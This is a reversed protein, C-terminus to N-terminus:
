SLASKAAALHVVWVAAALPATYLTAWVAGWVVANFLNGKCHHRDNVVHALMGRLLLYMLLAIVPLVFEIVLWVALLLLIFLVVSAIVGLCGEGIELSGTGFDGFSWWGSSTGPGSFRLPTGQFDDSVRKGSCLLYALALTWVVWWGALILEADIWMPLRFAVPVLVATLALCAFLAAASAKGSAAPLLLRTTLPRRPRPEAKPTPQPQGM